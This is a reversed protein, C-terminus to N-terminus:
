RGMTINDGDEARRRAIAAAHATAPNDLAEVTFLAEILRDQIHYPVPGQVFAILFARTAEVLEKVEPIM